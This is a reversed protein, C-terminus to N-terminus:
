RVPGWCASRHQAGLLAVGWRLVTSTCLDIGATATPQEYLFDLSIGVFLAYILPPGSYHASVFAAALAVM